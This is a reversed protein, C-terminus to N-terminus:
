DVADVRPQEVVVPNELRKGGAVLQPPKDALDPFVTLDVDGGAFAPVLLYPGFGPADEAHQLVVASVQREVVLGVRLLYVPQEAHAFLGELHGGARKVLLLLDDKCLRPYVEEPLPVLRGGLSKERPH